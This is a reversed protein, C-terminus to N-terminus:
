NALVLLGHLYETEPHSIAVPHDPGAAFPTLQILKRNARREARRVAEKLDEHRVAHSCSFLAALGEPKTWKLAASFLMEYAKLGEAFKKKSRVLPPPDCIVLDFSEGEFPDQRRDLLEAKVTRPEILNNRKFAERALELAHESRDALTVSAAGHAAARLGFGGTYSFGDLVDLGETYSAVWRASFVQDLYGGTKQGETLDVPIQLGDMEVWHIDGPPDGAMSRQLPLGEMERAPSDDAAIVCTPSFLSDLAELIQERHVDMGVSTHQVFLVNEFRDVVLGPLGDGESHVVRCVNGLGLRERLRWATGIRREFFAKDPEEGAVRSHLRVAILSHPSVMGSGLPHGHGDLVTVAEGPEYQLLDDAIENSYVWLHGRRIRREEGPKLRVSKM